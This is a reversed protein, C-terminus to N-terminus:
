TTITGTLDVYTKELVPQITTDLWYSAIPLFEGKVFDRGRLHIGNEYVDIVYGESDAYVEKRSSAGAADGDRPVALSPIHISWGGFIHDINAMDSGYQLYFKLHSHGHFQHANKYHTMLSEFVIQETGGWIDFSYIGYANGSGDQPRVHHFVFCRKNRNAELTEYLWQLEETTFLTGTNSTYIGCMIFVDDNYEFSYYIPHGTYPEMLSAVKSNYADHNGSVAYVPTDASYTSVYDKYIQLQEETGSSTLDGAICTFAVDEVENFYTLARQFDDNATEYTLHIDSIAGFSYLKQKIDPPALQKIQIFGIRTGNNTYVGIKNAGVTGINQAIFNNYVGVDYDSTADDIVIENITIIASTPEGILSTRFYAASSSNVIFETAFGDKDAEITMYEPMLTETIYAWGNVELLEKNADFFAIRMGGIDHGYTAIDSDINANAIKFRCNYMRVIDGAKCPIFGTCFAPNTADPTNLNSPTGSSGIRKKEMYGTGNFITGDTDTSIALQNTYTTSGSMITAIKTTGGHADEYALTYTGHALYEFTEIDNNEKVKGLIPTDLAEIIEEFGEPLKGSAKEEAYREALSKVVAANTNYPTSVIYNVLKDLYTM